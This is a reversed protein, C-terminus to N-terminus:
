LGYGLIANDVRIETGSVHSAADSALFHVVQAVKDPTCARGGRNAKADFLLRAADVGPASAQMMPTWIGDPHVSNVRVAIGRKRCHLAVSRTLAAVSAKSAGYAAYGDVPMWSSISAINVIAGGRSKMARLGRQCGIFVSDANVRMLQRWQALTADEISGPLLIGANNVLIDLEGLAAAAAMAADWSSEDAVDLTCAAAAPGLERAAAAVREGDIDTLLVRAGAAVFQAAIERGLGGGAGTVMALKGQLTTM